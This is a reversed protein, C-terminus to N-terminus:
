VKKEADFNLDNRQNRRKNSKVLNGVNTKPTYLATIKEIEIDYDNIQNKFYKYLEFSKKLIFLQDDCWIGELSKVVEERSARIRSDRHLALKEPDREGNIIARLIKIGSKGMIDSIVKHIKINMLDLSKQIHLVEKASSQTLTNRHRVLNRLQKSLNDAQYSAPLLGYSHLLQIWSADVVDTKKDGINKVHKANSLVVDFGADQLIFFLQVWYIGTAEM